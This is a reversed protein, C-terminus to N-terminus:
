FAPSCCCCITLETTFFVLQGDCGDLPVCSGVTLCREADAQLEVSELASEGSGTLNLQAFVVAVPVPFLQERDGVLPTSCSRALPSSLAADADGVPTPDYQWKGADGGDGDLM